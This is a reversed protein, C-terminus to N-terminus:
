RQKEPEGIYITPKASPNPAYLPAPAFLQGRKSGSSVTESGSSRHEGLHAVSVSATPELSSSSLEFIPTRKGQEPADIRAKSPRIM